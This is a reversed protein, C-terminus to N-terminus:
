AFVDAMTQVPDDAVQRAAARFLPVVALNAVFGATPIALDDDRLLLGAVTFAVFVGGCVLVRRTLARRRRAYVGLAVILAATGLTTAVDSWPPEVEAHWFGFDSQYLLQFIPIMTVATIAAGAAGLHPLFRPLPPFRAQGLVLAAVACAVAAVLVAIDVVLALTLYRVSGFMVWAGLAASALARLISAVALWRLAGAARRHDSRPERAGRGALEAVIVLVLSQGIGLISRGAFGIAHSVDNGYLRYLPPLPELALVLVVAIASPVLARRGGAIALGLVVLEFTATWVWANYTQIFTFDADSRGRAIMVSSAIQGAIAGLEAIAVVYLAVRRVGACRRALEFAGFGVLLTGVDHFAVSLALQWDGYHDAFLQIALWLALGAARIGFGVVIAPPAARLMAALM